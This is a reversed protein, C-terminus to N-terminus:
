TPDDSWEIPHPLNQKFYERAASWYQHPGRYLYPTAALVYSVGGNGMIESRWAPANMLIEQGLGQVYGPGFLQAWFVHTLRHARVAEMEVYVNLDEAFAYLPEMSRYCIRGYELFRDSQLTAEASDPPLFRDALAGLFLHPSIDDSSNSLELYSGGPEQLLIRFFCESRQLDAVHCGLNAFQDVLPQLGQIQPPQELYFVWWLDETSDIVFWELNNPTM